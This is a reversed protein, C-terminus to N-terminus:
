FAVAIWPSFGHGSLVVSSKCLHKLEERRSEMNEQGHTKGQMSPAGPPASLTIKKTAENQSFGSSGTIYWNSKPHLVM